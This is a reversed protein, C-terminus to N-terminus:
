HRESATLGRTAPGQLLTGDPAFRSGHLPCEWACDADNWTVIGGLHPCVPSVTRHVGDVVSDAHLHWPPGAVVGHGEAPDARRTAPAVWGKALEYGDSLNHKLAASLGRLERPSWAAFANAWPMHGGLIQGSLSLAAAIGNTM